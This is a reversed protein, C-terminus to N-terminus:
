AFCPNPVRASQEAMIQVPIEPLDSKQGNLALLEPIMALVKQNLRELTDAETVLGELDDSDAVWVAAEEDWVARVIILRRNM